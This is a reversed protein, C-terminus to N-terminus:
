NIEFLININCFKIEIQKIVEQVDSSEESGSDVSM